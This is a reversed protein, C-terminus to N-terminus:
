VNIGALTLEEARVCRCFRGPEIERLAPVAQACRPQSYSCRPEFPCGPPLHSPDAVEGKLVIQKSKVDPDAIPSASLLAETYPNRPARFLQEVDSTEMLYGAYMVAVRDAIHRVVTLDHAVFLYTLGFKKQLDQLLNLVQAQVSVDLASVPEDAVILKPNLALARAIGIRQRQGGSFAHPYRRLFHPKLGVQLLLETVREERQKRNRMGHNLLPEGILDLVTMRPNLSSYPDQFIMQAHRRMERLTAADAKAMDVVRGDVRFEIEGETPRYVRLISRGVTTKGSGSEGVLGFCEGERLDFDVGNVARVYNVVRNFIGKTIPFYKKLNRVKLLPGTPQNM